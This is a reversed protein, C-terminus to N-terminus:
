KAAKKDGKKKKGKKEIHIKRGQAKTLIFDGLCIILM